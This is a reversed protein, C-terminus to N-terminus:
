KRHGAAAGRQQQQQVSRAMKVKNQELKDLLGGISSKWLDMQTGIQQWQQVTFERHIAMVVNVTRNLQNMKAQCLGSNVADIVYREVESEDIQLESAITSYPISRTGGTSAASARSFITVLTLLRMKKAIAAESMGSSEILKAGNADATFKVYDSYTGSVFMDLLEFLKSHTASGKIRQQVVPTARLADFRFCKEDKIAQTVGRVVVEEDAEGVNSENFANIYKDYLHVDGTSDALLALVGSSNSYGWRALLADVNNSHFQAHLFSKDHLSAFRILEHLMFLHLDPMERASIVNLM